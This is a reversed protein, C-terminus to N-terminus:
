KYIFREMAPDDVNEGTFLVSEIHISKPPVIGERLYKVGWEVAAQGIKYPQQAVAANMWGKRIMEIIEPPADFGVIKVAGSLGTNHIATAAGVSAFLNNGFVGAVDPHAKLVGNTQTQALDQDDDCSNRAIL